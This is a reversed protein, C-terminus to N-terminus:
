HVVKGAGATAGLRDAMWEPAADRPGQVEVKGGLIVESRDGYRSPHLKALAWKLTDIRVRIAHADQPTARASRDLMEEFLADAQAVRARDYAARFEQYLSEANPQMGKTMWSLITSPSPPIDLHRWKPQRGWRCIQKLTKGEAILACITVGNGGPEM